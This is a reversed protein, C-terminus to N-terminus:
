PIMLSSHKYFTEADIYLNSETVNLQSGVAQIQTLLSLSHHNDM